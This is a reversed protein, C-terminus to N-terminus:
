SRLLPRISGMIMAFCYNSIHKFKRYYQRWYEMSTKARILCFDWKWSLIKSRQSCATSTKLSWWMILNSNFLIKVPILKNQSNFKLNLFWCTSVVLKLSMSLHLCFSWSQSIIYLLGLFLSPPNVSNSSCIFLNFFYIFSFSQFDASIEIM